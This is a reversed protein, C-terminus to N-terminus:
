LGTENIDGGWLVSKVIWGKRGTLEVQCWGDMCQNLDAVVGPELTAVGPADEAPTKRLITESRVLVTQQSSLMRAHIWVEDGDPDRVWRWDQSEKLILVPLGMREYRWQIPYDLSPGKRGNAAAYRLSEFRPVPKGSFQSIIQVDGAEGANQSGAPAASFILLLVALATIRMSTFGYKTHLRADDSGIIFKVYFFVSM